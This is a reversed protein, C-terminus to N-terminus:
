VHVAGWTFLHFADGPGTRPAHVHFGCWRVFAIARQNEAHVLNLLGPFSARMRHMEQRACTMVARRPVREIARLCLMWPVGWGAPHEAVGYLMVPEGRWTLRHAWAMPGALSERLMAQPDDHGGARMEAMDADTFELGALHEPLLPELHLADAM